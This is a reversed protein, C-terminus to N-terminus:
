HQCMFVQSMIPGILPCAIVFQPVGVSPLREVSRCLERRHYLIGEGQVRPVPYLCPSFLILGSGKYKREPALSLYASTPHVKRFFAELAWLNDTATTDDDNKAYVSPDDASSFGVGV